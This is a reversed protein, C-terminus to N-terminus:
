GKADAEPEIVDEPAKTVAKVTRLVNARSALGEGGDALLQGHKGAAALSNTFALPRVLGLTNLTRLSSSSGLPRTVTDLSTDSRWCVVRRALGL